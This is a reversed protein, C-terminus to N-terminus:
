RFFISVRIEQDIDNCRKQNFFKVNKVQMKLGKGCFVMSGDYKNLLIIKDNCQMSFSQIIKFFHFNMMTSSTLRLNHIYNIKVKNIKFHSRNYLHLGFSLVELETKWIHCKIIFNDKSTAEGSCM